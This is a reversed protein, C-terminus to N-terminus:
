SSSYVAVTNLALRASNCSCSSPLATTLRRRAATAFLVVLLWM